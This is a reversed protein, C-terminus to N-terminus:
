MPTIQYLHEVSVVMGMGGFLSIVTSVAQAINLLGMADLVLAEPLISSAKLVVQILQLWAFVFYGLVYLYAFGISRLNWGRLTSCVEVPLFFCNTGLIPRSEATEAAAGIPQSGAMLRQFSEQLTGGLINLLQEVPPAEKNDLVPNVNSSDVAAATPTAQAERTALCCSCIAILIVFSFTHAISNPM